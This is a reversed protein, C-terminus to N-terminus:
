PHYDIVVEAVAKEGFPSTDSLDNGGASPSRLHVHDPDHQLATLKDTLTAM